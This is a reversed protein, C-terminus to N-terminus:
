VFKLNNSDTNGTAAGDTVPLIKQGMLYTLIFGYLSNSFGVEFAHGFRIYDPMLEGQPIVLPAIGGIIAFFVGILLARKILSLNVSRFIIFAALIFILARFFQTGIMLEFPPIKDGYFDMLSPYVSYLIFGALLYFFVYLLDSVIFRWTWTLFGRPAFQLQSNEGKWKGFFYVLFPSSILSIFLGARIIDLTQGRDTVNFIYAEILINFHGILFYVIFVLLSLRWGVQTNNQIILGLILVILANSLLFWSLYSLNLTGVFLLELALSILTLFLTSLIFSTFFSTKMFYFIVIRVIFTIRNTSIHLL